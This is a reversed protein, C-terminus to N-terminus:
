INEKFNFNAILPISASLNIKTPLSPILLQHLFITKKLEGFPILFINDFNMNHVIMKTILRIINAINIM